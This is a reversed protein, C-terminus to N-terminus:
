LPRLLSGRVAYITHNYHSLNESVGVVIGLIPRAVLRNYSAVLGNQYGTQAKM